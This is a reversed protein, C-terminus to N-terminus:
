MEKLTELKYKYPITKNSKNIKKRGEKKFRKITFRNDMRSKMEM